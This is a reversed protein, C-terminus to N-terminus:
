HQRGIQVCFRLRRRQRRSNLRSKWTRLLVTSFGRGCLLRRAEALRKGSRGGREWPAAGGAAAPTVGEAGRDDRKPWVREAAGAASGRLRAALRPPADASGNFAKRCARRAGAVGRWPDCSDSVGDSQTEAVARETMRCGRERVAALGRTGGCNIQRSYVSMTAEVDMKGTTSKQRSLRGHVVGQPTGLLFEVSATEDEGAVVTDLRVGSGGVSAVVRRRWEAANPNRWFPQMERAEAAVTYRVIAAAPHVGGCNRKLVSGAGGGKGRTDYDGSDPGYRRAAPLTHMLVPCHRADVGSGSCTPGRGLLEGSAWACNERAARNHMLDDDRRVDIENCSKLLREVAAGVKAVARVRVSECSRRLQALLAM